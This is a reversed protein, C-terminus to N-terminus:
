SRCSRLSRFTSPQTLASAEARRPRPRRSRRGGPAADGRRCRCSAAVGRDQQQPHRVGHGSGLRRGQRLARGAQRHAQVSRRRVPRRRLDARAASRLAALQQLGAGALAHAPRIPPTGNQVVVPVGFYAAAAIVHGARLTNSGAASSRSTPRSPPTRPVGDRHRRRAPLPRTTGRRAGAAARRAWRWLSPSPRRSAGSPWVCLSRGTRQRGRSGVPRVRKPWVARISDRFYRYEPRYGIHRSCPRPRSLCSSITFLVELVRRPAPRLRRRSTAQSAKPATPMMMPATQAVPKAEM